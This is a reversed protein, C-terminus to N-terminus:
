QFGKSKQLIFAPICNPYNQNNEKIKGIFLNMIKDFISSLHIVRINLDSMKTVIQGAILRGLIIGALLGIGELLEQQRKDIKNESFKNYVKVIGRSLFKGIVALSVVSMALVSLNGLPSLNNMKM